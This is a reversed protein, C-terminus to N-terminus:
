EAAIVKYSRVPFLVPAASAKNYAVQFGFKFDGGPIQARVSKVTQSSVIVAIIGNKVIARASNM